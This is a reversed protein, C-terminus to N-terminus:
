RLEALLVIYYEAVEKVDVKVIEKVTNDDVKDVVTVRAYGIGEGNTSAEIIVPPRLAVVDGDIEM